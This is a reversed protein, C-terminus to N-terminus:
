WSVQDKLLNFVLRGRVVIYWVQYVMQIFVMWEWWQVCCLSSLMSGSVTDSQDNILTVVLQLRSHKMNSEDMNQWFVFLLHRLLHLRQGRTKSLSTFTFHKVQQWITVIYIVDIPSQNNKRKDTLSSIALQNFHVIQFLISVVTHWSNLLAHQSALHAFFIM